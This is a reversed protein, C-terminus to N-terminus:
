RHQPHQCLDRLNRRDMSVLSNSAEFECGAPPSSVFAVAADFLEFDKSSVIAQTKKPAPVSKDSNTPQDTRAYQWISYGAVAAVSLGAAAVLLRSDPKLNGLGLLDM